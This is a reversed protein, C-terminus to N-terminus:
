VSGFLENQRDNFCIKFWETYNEPQINIDAKLQIANIYKWAAVETSDSEPIADTVGTFVHDFEHETLGNELNAIYVFSFIEKLECTIGMEEHLRRMAADYVTEGPRPHSCSTNTWLGASHYKNHARQQLLLDGKSNFIFVSIARHLRGEIHAQQKEMIGIEKDQEDVLIVQEM